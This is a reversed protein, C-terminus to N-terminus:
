HARIVFFEYNYFESFAHWVDMEHQIQDALKQADLEDRHRERFEMVNRQLPGYYDDWWSSPQCRSTGWRRM